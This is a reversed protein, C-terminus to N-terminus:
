VEVLNLLRDVSLGLESRVDEQSGYTHPWDHRLGCPVLRSAFDHKHLRTTAISFLGVAEFQEEVIVVRSFHRLLDLLDDEPFPRISTAAYVPVHRDSTSRLSRLIWDAIPGYTVVATSGQDVCENPNLCRLRGLEYPQDAWETIAPEGSKGLRLYSPTGSALIARIAPEVELPDCPVVIDMNPLAYMLPVDEYTHHTGGLASYSLGTGVGVITVPLDQYCVDVRIHEFPRFVTFNAITYAFPRFGEIALGAALGIMAQEAVGADVVRSPAREVFEALASAPSIDATVLFLDDRERSISNLAYAFHDRM